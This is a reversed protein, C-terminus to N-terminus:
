IQVAYDPNFNRLPRGLHYVSFLALMACLYRVVYSIVGSQTFRIHADGTTNLKEVQAGHLHRVAAPLPIAVDDLDIRLM